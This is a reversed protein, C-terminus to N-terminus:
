CPRVFLDYLLNGNSNCKGVGEPDPRTSQVLEPTFIALFSLGSQVPLQLVLADLVNYCKDEADDPNAM